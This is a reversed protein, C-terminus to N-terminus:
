RSTRMEGEGATPLPGPAERRRQPKQFLPRLKYNKSDLMWQRVRPTKAGSRRGSRNWYSVADTKHAMDANKIPYWKGDSAKFKTNKGQGRLTKAKRMREQVEKGTRSNKGPTRGLYKERLSKPKSCDNCSDNRKKSKSAKADAKKKAAKAKAKSAM